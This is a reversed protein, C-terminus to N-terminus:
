PKPSCTRVTDCAVFFTNTEPKGTRTDTQTLIQTQARPSSTKLSRLYSLSRSRRQTTPTHTQRHINTHRDTDRRSSFMNEVTDCVFFIPNTEPVGTCIDKQTYTKTQTQARPSCIRLKITCSLSRPRRQTMPTHTKRRACTNKDTDRRLSFINEVTDCVVFITIMEPNSTHTDIHTHM